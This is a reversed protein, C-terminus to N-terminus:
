AARLVAQAPAAIVSGPGALDAYLGSQDNLVGIKVVKDGAMAGSIAGFAVTTGLLLAAIKKNM